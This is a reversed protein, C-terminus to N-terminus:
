SKDKLFFFKMWDPLLFGGYIIILSPINIILTIVGIHTITYFTAGTIFLLIGLLILKGKLRIEPNESKKSERYFIIGTILLISLLVVTNIRVIPGMQPYFPENIGGILSLDAYIFILFLTVIVVQYIVFLMMILKQKKKFLLESFVLVWFFMNFAVFYGLLFYMEPSIGSGTLLISIFSISMPFWPRGIFSIAVALYLLNRQEHQFYKSLIKLAIFFPIVVMIIAMIGNIFEIQTM